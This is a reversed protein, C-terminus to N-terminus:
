GARGRLDGCVRRSSTERSAERRDSSAGVRAEPALSIKTIQSNATIISAAPGGNTAAKTRRKGDGTVWARTRMTITTAWRRMVLYTPSISSRAAARNPRVKM